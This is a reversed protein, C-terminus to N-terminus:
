VKWGKEVPDIGESIQLTAKLTSGPGVIYFWTGTCEEDFRAVDDVTVNTIANTYVTGNVENFYASSFIDAGPMNEAGRGHLSYNADVGAVVLTGGSVAIEITKNGAFAVDGDFTFLDVGHTTYGVEPLDPIPANLTPVPGNFVEVGDIKAVLSVPSSGYALGQQKFIRTTM